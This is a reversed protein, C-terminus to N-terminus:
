GIRYLVTCIRTVYCVTVHGRLALPRVLQRAEISSTCTSYIYMVVHKWLDIFQIFPIIKINFRTLKDIYINRDLLQPSLPFGTFFMKGIKKLVIYLNEKVSQNM